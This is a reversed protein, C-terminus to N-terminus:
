RLVGLGLDSAALNLISALVVVFDVCNYGNRLYSGPHVIFGLALVQNSVLSVSM